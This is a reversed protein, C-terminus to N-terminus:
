ADGREADPARTVPHYEQYTRKAGVYQLDKFSRPFRASLESVAFAFTGGTMLTCMCDTPPFHCSVGQTLSCSWRVRDHRLRDTNNFAVHWAVLSPCVTTRLTVVYCEEPHPSVFLVFQNYNYKMVQYQIGSFSM